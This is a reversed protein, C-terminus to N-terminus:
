AVLPKTFTARPAPPSFPGVLDQRPSQAAQAPHGHHAAPPAPAAPQQAVAFTALFIIALYALKRRM